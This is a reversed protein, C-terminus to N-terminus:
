FPAKGNENDTEKNEGKPKEGYNNTPNVNKKEYGKFLQPM